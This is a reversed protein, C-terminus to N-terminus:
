RDPAAYGGTSRVIVSSESKVRIEVKRWSGDHQAHSSTYGVVFRRRLDDVVRHFEAGLQTVDTPFFARGGSLDALEQLPVRDVKTGLAIAFVTAGSDKLDKVVDDFGRVSGPATGANNEDRGDSMVVVVRRGPASKLRLLSESIADYLATGGAAHYNQIAEYSSERNLSLDQAFVSRDGFLMVALSDKEQLSDVFERASAVVDSEKKHMSGSADLALVISVPQLAEQFTEISQPVGDELVELDDASVNLYSGATDTVTFEITPKIPSPKPAFYGTRTRVSYAPNATKVTIARWTGDADQNKPTYTILYRNQVDGTLVDHVQALQEERAPFFFRGGSEVALQRLMREGKISIGAVGGIGVVYLTAGAKKVATLAEEFPTSSNEDYGDTILVIARRGEVDALSRSVQKLSDLIATGGAPRIADIGELITARDNTPGTVAEVGRSFPAVIIRDQPRMYSALTSATRQVFDMRRSMSSSSDVLLAFTAGVEEQRVVDLVQPVGDELVSFASPPMGKVFRHKEDQVSAELLVSSVGSAESVEFPELVVSDRAEHGVTDIVEVSIERREFPNEDAWEVAYPPGQSVSALLKQDVFFRVEGPAVASIHRVQAVIRVTGPAGTRGLPSTIRVSLGGDQGAVASVTAAALVLAAAIGLARTRDVVHGM